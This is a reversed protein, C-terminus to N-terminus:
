TVQVDSDVSFCFILYEWQSWYQGEEFDSNKLYSLLPSYINSFDTSGLFKLTSHVYFHWKKRRASHLLSFTNPAWHCLNEPWAPEAWWQPCRLEAWASSPLESQCNFTAAVCMYRPSISNLENTQSSWKKFSLFLEHEAAKALTLWM